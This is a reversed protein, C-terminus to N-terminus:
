RWDDQVRKKSEALETKLDELGRAEMGGAKLARIEEKYKAITEDKAENIGELNAIMHDKGRGVSKANAIKGYLKLIENTANGITTCLTVRTAALAEEADKRDMIEDKWASKNASNEIKYYNRNKQLCHITHRKGVIDDRQESVIDTLVQIQHVLQNTQGMTTQAAALAAVTNTQKVSLRCQTLNINRVLVMTELNKTSVM